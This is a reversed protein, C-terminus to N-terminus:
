PAAYRAAVQELGRRIEEAPVWRGRVMVGARRELNDVNALPDADLLVVDARQGAAITGFRADGKLWRAVYQSVNSTGSQLIQTQTLGADRMARIERQLAFGPVNMMQPSDTGMLLRNGTRGLERLMLRRAAIFKAKEEATLNSSQVGQSFQRAMNAWGAWMTRPIYRMEPLREFEEPTRGSFFNEWLYETPVVWADAERTAVALSHIKASDAGGLVRAAEGGMGINGSEAGAAHELYGDIHDVTSQKSALAHTIGVDASIHGAYTIGVDQATTTIADFVPRSLGPHLKLFDYGATKHARVLRAATQPDPASNANLSPAGVLITPGLLEGSATQRRLDLQNPAGLMGRITTIGNAVYLFLIDHALQTPANAAPLHAHMEALGPMLYKGRGQIVTAGAPPALTGAAGVQAIRGDRVIVTRNPLLQPGTGTMPIVTVDVFAVTGGAGAAPAGQAVLSAPAFPLLAALLRAAPRLFRM